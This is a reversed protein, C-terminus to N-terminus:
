KGDNYYNWSGAGDKYHLSLHDMLALWLVKKEGILSFILEDDPVVSKDSLLLEGKGAM